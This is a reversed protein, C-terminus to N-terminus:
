ANALRSESPIEEGHDRCIQAAREEVADGAPLSEDERIQGSLWGVLDEVADGGAISEVEDMAGRYATREEDSYNQTGVTNQIAEDVQRMGTEVDM